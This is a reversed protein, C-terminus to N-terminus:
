KLSKPSHNSKSKLGPNKLIYTYFWRHSHLNSYFSFMLTKVNKFGKISPVVLSKFTGRIQKKWDRERLREPFAKNSDILNEVNWKANLINFAKWFVLLETDQCKFTLINICFFHLLSKVIAHYTYYVNTKAREEKRWQWEAWSFCM